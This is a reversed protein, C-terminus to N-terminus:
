GDRLSADDLHGTVLICNVERTVCYEDTLPLKAIDQGMQGVVAVTDGPKLDEVKPGIKRVVNVNGAASSQPAILQSGIIKERKIVRLLVYDNRPRYSEYDLKPM